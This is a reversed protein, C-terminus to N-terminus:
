GVVEVDLGLDNTGEDARWTGVNAMRVSYRPDGALSPSGDPLEVHIRYTGPSLDGPVDFSLDITTTAGPRPMVSRADAVVEVRTLAGTSQDALVVNSADLQCTADAFVLRSRTSAAM